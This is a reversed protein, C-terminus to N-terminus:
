STATMPPPAAPREAARTRVRARRETTTMSAPSGRLAGAAWMCPKRERSPMGGASSSAAPRPSTAAYPPWRTSPVTVETRAARRGSPNSTRNPRRRRREGGAAHQDGGPQAVLHGVERADALAPTAVQQVARVAVAVLDAVLAEAHEAAGRLGHLVGQDDPLPGAVDDVEVVGAGEGRELALLQEGPGDPDDLPRDRPEDDLVVPERADLEVVAADHAAVGDEDARREHGVGVQEGLEAAVAAVVAPDDGVRGAAGADGADPHGAVGDFGRAWTIVAAPSPEAAAIAM